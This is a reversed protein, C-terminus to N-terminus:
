LPGATTSSCNKLEGGALFCFVSSTGSAFTKVESAAVAICCCILAINIILYPSLTLTYFYWLSFLYLLDKKRFKPFIVKNLLERLLQQCLQLWM